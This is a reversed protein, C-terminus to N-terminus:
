SASAANLTEIQTASLKLRMAKILDRCQEIKTASVIPATV